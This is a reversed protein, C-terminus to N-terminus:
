SLTLCFDSLNTSLVVKLLKSVWKKNKIDYASIFYEGPIVPYYADTSSFYSSNINNIQVSYYLKSDFFLVSPSTKIYLIDKEFDALTFKYFESYKSIYKIIFTGNPLMIKVAYEGDKGIIPFATNSNPLIINNIISLNNEDELVINYSDGNSNDIPIDDGNFDINVNAMSFNTTFYYKKIYSTNNVDKYEIELSYKENDLLDDIIISKKYETLLTSSKNIIKFSSNSLCTFIYSFSICASSFNVDFNVLKNTHIVNLSEYLPNINIEPLLNQIGLSQDLTIDSYSNKPINLIYLLKEFEKKIINYNPSGLAFFLLISFESQKLRERQELIAIDTSLKTDFFKEPFNQAEKLSSTLLEVGGGKVSFDENIKIITANLSFRLNNLTNLASDIEYVLNIIFNVKKIFATVIAGIVSDAVEAGTQLVELFKFLTDKIERVYPIIEITLPVWQPYDSGAISGVIPQTVIASIYDDIKKSLEEKKAKKRLLIEEESLYESDTNDLLSRLESILKDEYVKDKRNQSKKAVTNKWEQINNRFTDYSKALNTIKFISNLKNLNNLLEVQTSASFLLGIGAVNNASNWKPRNNDDTNTFSDILEKIAENPSLKPIKFDIKTLYEDEYSIKKIQKKLKKIEENLEQIRKSNIEPNRQVTHLEKEKKAIDKKIKINENTLQMSELTQEFESVPNLLDVKINITRKKKQNFPTIIIFSGGTSIFTQITKELQKLIGKYITTLPNQSLFKFFPNAIKLFSQLTEGVFQLTDSLKGLNKSLFSFEKFPNVGLTKNIIKVPKSSM